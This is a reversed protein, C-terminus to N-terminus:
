GFHGFNNAKKKINLGEVNSTILLLIPLHIQALYICGINKLAHSHARFHIHRGPYRSSKCTRVPTPRRIRRVRPPYTGSIHGKCSQILRCQSIERTHICTYLLYIGLFRVIMATFFLMM